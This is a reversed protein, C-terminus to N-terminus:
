AAVSRWPCPWNCPSSSVDNWWRKGFGRSRLRPSNPRLLFLLFPPRVFFNKSWQNSIAQANVMSHTSDCRSRKWFCWCVSFLIPLFGWGSLPVCFFLLVWVLLVSHSSFLFCVNVHNLLVLDFPVMLVLVNMVEFFVVVFVLLCDELLCLIGLFYCYVFIFLYFCCGFFLVCLM